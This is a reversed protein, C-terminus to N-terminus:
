NFTYVAVMKRQLDLPNYENTILNVIGNEVLTGRVASYYLLDGASNFTFVELNDRNPVNDFCNTVVGNSMEVSYIHHYGLEAGNENTMSYQLLIRDKNKESKVVKGSPLPLKNVLEVLKGDADAVQVIFYYPDTGTTNYYEYYIGSDSVNLRAGGERSYPIADYSSNDCNWNIAKINSGKIFCTKSLFSMFYRYFYKYYNSYVMNEYNGCLLQVFLDMRDLNSAIWEIADEDTLTTYLSGFSEDNKFVTLCFEKEGEMNCYSFLKELISSADLEEDENYYNASFKYCNRWYDNGIVYEGGLVWEWSSKYNGNQYKEFLDCGKVSRTETPFSWEGTEENYISDLSVTYNFLEEESDALLVDSDKLYIIDALVNHSYGDQTNISNFYGNNHYSIAYLAGRGENTDLAEFAELNKKGKTLKAVKSLEGNLSEYKDFRIDIEDLTIRKPQGSSSDWYSPLDSVIRDLIIQPNFKGQSDKVTERWNYTGTYFGYLDFLNLGDFGDGVYYNLYKKDKFGNKKTATCLCDPNNMNEHIIFYLIGSGKDYVWNDCQISWDSSYFVNVPSNPNNIPIARLFYSNSRYGSVFIWLGEDDIQMKDYITSGVAAVMQTLKATKPNYQYIMDGNDSSIFYVNGKADFTISDTRLSLHTNMSDTANEKKLIDAITGDEHLALLQGVRIDQTDKYTGGWDYEKNVEEYGIKSEGSMVLFVEDSDKLPSKYISVIDSLECNEEVFVADEMSGDSMIKVIDGLRSSAAARSNESELKALAQAGSLNFTVGIKRNLVPTTDDKDDPKNEGDVTEVSDKDDKETKESNEQQQQEKQQQQIEEGSDDGTSPNCSFFLCGAVFISIFEVFAKKM